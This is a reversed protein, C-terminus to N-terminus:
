RLLLLKKTELFNKTQLRYFYVGSSVNAANWTRQHNGMTLEENVLTTVERGLVDYLKLTVFSRQPLSFRITTAPNFPNPYNQSLSFATPIEQAFPVSVLITTKSAVVWTDFFKTYATTVTQATRNLTSPLAELQRSLPNYGAVVLSDERFTPDPPFDAPTYTFTVNATFTGDRLTDYVSWYRLLPIFRWYFNELVSQSISSGATSGFQGNFEEAVAYGATQNATFGLSATIPNFAIQSAGAPVLRFATAVPSLIPYDISDLGVILGGAAVLRITIRYTRAEPPISTQDDIVGSNNTSTGTSANTLLPLSPTYQYIPMGSANLLRDFGLWVQWGTINRTSITYDFKAGYRNGSGTTFHQRPIIPSTMTFPITTTLKIRNANEDISLVRVQQGVVAGADTKLSAVLVIEGKIRLGVDRLPINLTATHSLTQNTGSPAPLTILSFTTLVTGTGVTREKFDLEITGPNPSSLTYSMNLKVTDINGRVFAQAFATLQLTSPPLNVAFAIVNSRVASVNGDPVLIAEVLVVNSLAPVTFQIPPISATHNGSTVNVATGPQNLIIGDADRLVVVIQGTPASVLDYFDISSNLTVSSSPVLPTSTSPSSVTLRVFDRQPPAAGGIFPVYDITNSFVKLGRGRLNSRGDSITTDLPGSPDGWDNNKMNILVNSRAAPSTPPPFWGIGGYIPDVGETSFRNNNIRLACQTRNGALSQPDFFFAVPQYYNSVDNDSVTAEAAFALQLARGGINRPARMRNGRIEARITPGKSYLSDQDLGWASLSIGQTTEIRNNSIVITGSSPGITNGTRGDSFERAPGVRIADVGVSDRFTNNEIIPTMGRLDLAYSGNVWRQFTNGTFRPSANLVIPETSGPFGSNSVFGGFFLFSNGSIEMSGIHGIKVCYKIRSNRLVDRASGSFRIYWLGWTPTSAGGDGNTDGGEADDRIDTITAGDIQITVNEEPRNVGGFQSAIRGGNPPTWTIGGNTSFTGAFKVIAGPRITLIPNPFETTGYVEYGNVVHVAGGRWVVTGNRVGDGDYAADGDDQSFTRGTRNIVQQAITTGVGLLLLLSAALLIKYM